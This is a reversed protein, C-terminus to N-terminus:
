KLIVRKVYGVKAFDKVFLEDDALFRNMGAVLADKQFDLQNRVMSSSLSVYLIGDKYFKRLTFSSVGSVVDWADFVRQTNLGAELRMARVYQRILEDMGVAEKRPVGKIKQYDSM